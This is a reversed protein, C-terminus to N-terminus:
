FAYLETRLIQNFTFGFNRNDKKENKITVFHQIKGLTYQKQISFVKGNSKYGNNLEVFIEKNDILSKYLEHKISSSTGM